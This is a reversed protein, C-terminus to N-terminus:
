LQTVCAVVEKLKLNFHINCGAEEAPETVGPWVEQPKQQDLIYVMCCQWKERPYVDGMWSYENM